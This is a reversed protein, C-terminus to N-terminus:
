FQAHDTGMDSYMKRWSYILAESVVHRKAVEVVPSKHTEQLIRVIQVDTFRAPKM